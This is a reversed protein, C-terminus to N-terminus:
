KCLDGNSLFIIFLLIFSVNVRLTDIQDALNRCLCREVDARAVTVHVNSKDVAAHLFVNEPAKDAAPAANSTEWAVIWNVFNGMVKVSNEDRVSWAIWGMALLGYVCNALNDVRRLNRNHPDAKAMLKHSQGHSGFSDLELVSVSSVIYRTQVQGSSAAVNRGLVVAVSNIDLRERAVVLLVEHVQVIGRVLTDNM